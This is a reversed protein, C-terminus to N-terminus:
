PKCPHWKLHPSRLLEDEAVTVNCLVFHKGSGGMFQAVDLEAPEALPEGLADSLGILADSLM